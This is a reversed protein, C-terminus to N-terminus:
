LVAENIKGLWKSYESTLPSKVGFETISIDSGTKKGIFFTLLTRFHVCVSDRAINVAFGAEKEKLLRWVEVASLLFRLEHQLHKKIYNEKEIETMRNKDLM